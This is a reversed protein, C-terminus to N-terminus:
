DRNPSGYYNTTRYVYSMIYGPTHPNVAQYAEYNPGGTRLLGYHLMMFYKVVETAVNGWTNAGFIFAVVALQSDPQSFDGNTPDGATYGVFWSHYPLRGKADQLGYEATGTKGAVKVKLDVLNGTHRSTVVDRTGLRMTRLTDASAPLHNLLQPQIETVAGTRGDTISKVIQPQWVNGGNALACYANLLQMATAADYGQGIGAQM